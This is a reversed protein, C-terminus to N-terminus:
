FAALAILCALSALTVGKGPTFVDVINFQSKLQFEKILKQREKEIKLREEDNPCSQKEEDLVKIKEEIKEQIKLQERINSIADFIEGLTLGVLCAKLSLLSINGYPDTANIPNNNVYRYLNTDLGSFGIPDESIFRGTGPDLFRARNDFVEMDEDWERSAYTFLNDISPSDVKNGEKDIHTINGFADYAYQQVIKGSSSSLAIVSGLYDRHLHYTKGGREMSLPSDTQPGHTYYASVKDKDSLEMIVNDGDHVYWTTKGQTERAIKRGEGDYRFSVTKTPSSSSDPRKTFRLLRNEVDWEFRTIENTSKDTKQLDDLKM